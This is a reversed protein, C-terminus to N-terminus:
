AHWSAWWAEFEVFGHVVVVRAGTAEWRALGYEQIKTPGRGPQKTEIEYHYGGSCGYIDPDGAM